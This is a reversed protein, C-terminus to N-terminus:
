HVSWQPTPLILDTACWVLADVRDPSYGATKRDFDTTFEVMQEELDPFSGVHHVRGQEYLASIPEARTVKGRSAWVAKYSVNPDVQRITSEVMEGGNNVEAVVRDAGWRHYADVVIKAWVAPRVGQISLDELICCHDLQDIGGVIIGCEDATSSSSGPPDVAVVIRRMRAMLEERSAHDERLEDLQASQWLALPNESLVKGYIEQQGKRTGEFKKLSHEYFRASLNARNDHSTGTTIVTSEDAMIEKLLKTPKPTTTVIVRPNAGERLAFMTQDWADQGYRFKCLEDFWALSGSAGRVSEPNEASLLVAYCGNPWTLRRKSPQYRPRCWPPSNKAFGGPGDIIYDRIDAPNNGIITVIEPAGPAATM